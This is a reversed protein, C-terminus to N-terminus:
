DQTNDPGLERGKQSHASDNPETYILREPVHTLVNSITLSNRWVAREVTLMDDSRTVRVHEDAEFKCFRGHLPVILRVLEQRPGDKAHSDHPHEAAEIKNPM